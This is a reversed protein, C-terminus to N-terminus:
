KSTYNLGIGDICCCSWIKTSLYYFTVSPCFPRYYHVNNVETFSEITNVSVLVTSSERVTQFALSSRRQLQKRCCAGFPARAADKMGDPSGSCDLDGANGDSRPPTNQVCQPILCGRHIHLYNRPSSLWDRECYESGKRM